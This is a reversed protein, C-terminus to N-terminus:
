LGSQRYVQLLESHCKLEFEMLRHPNKGHKSEFWMVGQSEIYLYFQGLLRTHHTLGEFLHSWLQSIGIEGIQLGGMRQQIKCESFNNGVICKGKDM